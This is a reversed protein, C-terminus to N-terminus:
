GANRMGATKPCYHRPARCRPDRNYTSGVSKL